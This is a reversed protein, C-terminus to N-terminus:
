SWHRLINRHLYLNEHVSASSSKMCLGNGRDIRNREVNFYERRAARDRSMKKVYWEASEAIEYGEFSIREFAERSKLVFQQGLKGLHM